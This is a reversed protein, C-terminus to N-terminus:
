RVSHFGAGHRSMGQLNRESAGYGQREGHQRQQWGAIDIGRRLRRAAQPREGAERGDGIFSLTGLGIEGLEALDEGMRAAQVAVGGAITRVLALMAPQVLRRDLAPEVAEAGDAPAARDAMLLRIEIGAPHGAM